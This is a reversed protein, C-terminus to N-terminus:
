PPHFLSSSIYKKVSFVLFSNEFGKRQEIPFQILNSLGIFLHSPVLDAYCCDGCSCVTTQEHESHTIVPEESDEFFPTIVSSSTAYDEQFSYKIAHEDAKVSNVLLAIMCLLAVFLKGV